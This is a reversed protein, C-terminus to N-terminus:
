LAEEKGYYGLARAVREINCFIHEAPKEEEEFHKIEVDHLYDIIELIDDKTQQNIEM